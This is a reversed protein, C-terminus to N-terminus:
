SLPGMPEHERFPDPFIILIDSIINEHSYKSSKAVIDLMLLLKTSSRFRSSKAHLITSFDKNRGSSFSEIFQLDKEAVERRSSM